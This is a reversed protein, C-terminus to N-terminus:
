QDASFSYSWQLFLCFRPFPSRYSNLICLPMCLMFYYQNLMEHTMMSSLSTNNKPNWSITYLICTKNYIAYEHIVYCQMAHTMQSTQLSFMNWVRRTHAIPHGNHINQKFQNYPLPLVISEYMEWSQLCIFEAWLGGEIRKRHHLRMDSNIHLSHIAKSSSVVLPVFGNDHM